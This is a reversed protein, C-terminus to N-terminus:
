SRTAPLLELQDPPPSAGRASAPRDHPAAEKEGAVRDPWRRAHRAAPLLDVGGPLPKRPDPRPKAEGVPSPPSSFHEPRADYHRGLEDLHLAVADAVVAAPQERHEACFLALAAAVRKLLTITTTSAIRAGM